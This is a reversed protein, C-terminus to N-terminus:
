VFFPAGVCIYLCLKPELVKGIDTRLRLPRFDSQAAHENSTADFELTPPYVVKVRFLLQPEYLGGVAVFIQCRM